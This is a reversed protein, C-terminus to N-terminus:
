KGHFELSDLYRDVAREGATGPICLGSVLLSDSESLLFVRNKAVAGGKIQVHWEVGPKPGYKESDLLFDSHLIKNGASRKKIENLYKFQKDRNNLKLGTAELHSFSANDFRPFKWEVTKDSVVVEPKIPCELSYAGHRSTKREWKMEPLESDTVSFDPLYEDLNLKWSDGEKVFGLTLRGSRSNQEQVSELQLELVATQEKVQLGVPKLGEPYEALFKTKLDKLLADRKEVVLSDVATVDAKRLFPYLSDFKKTEVLTTRFLSFDSTVIQLTSKEGCGVMFLTSLVLTLFASRKFNTM